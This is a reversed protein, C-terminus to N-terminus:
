QKDTKWVALPTELQVNVLEKLSTETEPVELETVLWAADSLGTPAVSMSSLPWYEDPGLLVLFFQLVSKLHGM